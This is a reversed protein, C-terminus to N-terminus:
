LEQECASLAPQSNTQVIEWGRRAPADSRECASSFPAFADVDHM